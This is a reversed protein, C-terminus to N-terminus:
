PVDSDYSFSYRVFGLLLFCIAFGTALGLIEVASHFPQRLLLRWGIRFDRPNM